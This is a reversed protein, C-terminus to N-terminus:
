VHYHKTQLVDHEGPPLHGIRFAALEINEATENTGTLGQFMPLLCTQQHRTSFYSQQPSGKHKNSGDTRTAAPALM